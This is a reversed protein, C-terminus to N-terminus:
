SIRESSVELLQRFFFQIGGKVRMEVFDGDIKEALAAFARSAPSSPFEVVLPRQARVSESVSRDTPVYGVYKVSVHLFRDVAAAFRRFVTEAERSDQVENVLVNFRKEQYRQCLLKVLAYADTMSTPEPNIVLVMENSAVNFHIVDPGIGAQTDILLYDYNLAIDEVAEMVRARDDVSLQCMREIGSSAPILSIGLPGDVIIDQINKRGEIVDFLTASPRAGLMVDLNALGLDADLVLVSRGRNALALATNLVSTTKGVGGKGSTFSVVRTIPLNKAVVQRTVNLSSPTQKDKMM